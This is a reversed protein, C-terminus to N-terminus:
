RQRYAPFFDTDACGECLREYVDRNWIKKGVCFPFETHEGFQKKFKFLSDEPDNSRGGGHHILEIGNESAWKTVAYRLIYAPSLFLYDSLTGSLHIHVTKGWVFYFGAAITKGEYIAKVLLIHDRYLELCKKFYDDEFYYYDAANNRDMTAYYIQEFEDLNEPAEVVEATIGKRLAQNINKRCRRSYEQAMFDPYAKLDTGVTNRLYEVHFLEKFDDANHMLPHFRVFESVVHNEECYTRYSEAFGSLLKEKASERTEGEPTLVECVYPGGYGYATVLDYYQRGDVPLSIPRRIFTHSVSGYENEFLFHEAKGGEIQEYLKSFEPDFYIDAIKEKHIEM